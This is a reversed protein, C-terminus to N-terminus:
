PIAGIPAVPTPAVPSSPVPGDPRRPGSGTQRDVWVPGVDVGSEECVCEGSPSATPRGSACLVVQACLTDDPLGQGTRICRCNEDPLQGLPCTVLRGCRAARDLQVGAPIQFCEFGGASVPEADPSQYALAPPVERGTALLGEFTLGKVLQLTFDICEDPPLGFGEPAMEAANGTEASVEAGSEDFFRVTVSGDTNFTISSTPRRNADQNEVQTVQRGGEGSVITTKQFGGDSTRTTFTETTAYTNPDTSMTTEAFLAVQGPGHYIILTGTMPDGSTSTTQRAVLNGFEDFHSVVNAEPGTRFSWTAIGYRDSEDTQEIGSAEDIFTSTREPDTSRGDYIRPLYGHIAAYADGGISLALPNDGAGMQGALADRCADRGAELQETRTPAHSLGCALEDMAPLAGTGLGRAAPDSFQGECVRRMRQEREPGYQTLLASLGASTCYTEVLASDLDFSFMRLQTRVINRAMGVPVASAYGTNSRRLHTMALRPTAPEVVRYAEALRRAHAEAALHADGGLASRASLASAVLGEIGDIGGTVIRARYATLLVDLDAAPLRDLRMLERAQALRWGRFDRKAYLRAVATATAVETDLNFRPPEAAPAATATSLASVLALSLTHLTRM